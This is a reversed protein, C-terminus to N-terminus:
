GEELEDVHMRLALGESRSAQLVTESQEVSFWGPECFVDASRAINQEVIAPLQVSVLEEVYSDAHQGRPIDHAGMWTHDITPTHANNNLREAVELLRLESEVNLGYGSKAELHTTGTRLAERLRQYGLLHLAEDSAARTQQVTYQIGGGLSAIDAYSKGERRWTIEKSRDGAWLLHTHGDILGPVVAHGELDFCATEGILSHRGEPISYEDILEQSDKITKIEGEEVVIGLGSPEVSNELSPASSKRFSVLPGINIFVSRM